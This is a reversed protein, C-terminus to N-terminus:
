DPTEREIAPVYVEGEHFLRQVNHPVNETIYAGQIKLGWDGTAKKRVEEVVNRELGEIKHPNLWDFCCMRRAQRALISLTHTGLSKQYDDVNNYARYFDMVNYILNCSVLLNWYSKELLERVRTPDEIKFSALSKRPGDLSRTEALDASDSKKDGLKVAKGDVLVECDGSDMISGKPGTLVSINKLDLVRDQVSTKELEYFPPLFLYFGPRM